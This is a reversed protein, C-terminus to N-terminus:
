HPALSMMLGSQLRSFIKDMIPLAAEYDNKDALASAQVLKNESTKVLNNLMRDKAPTTNLQQLFEIATKQSIIKRLYYQYEEKKNAFNLSQILTDGDRLTTVAEKILIYAGNLLNQGSDDNGSEYHKKAKNKLTIINGELVNAQAQQGKEESVRKFATMLTDINNTLKERDTLLDPNPAKIEYQENASRRKVMTQGNRLQVIANKVQAYAQDLTNRGASPNNNQYQTEARLIDAIIKNEFTKAQQINGTELAINRYAHILTNVNLSRSEFDKQHKSNAPEAIAASINFTLLTIFILFYKHPIRM